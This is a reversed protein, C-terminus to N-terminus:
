KTVELGTRAIDDAIAAAYADVIDGQRDRLTDRVMRHAEVGRSTGYEIPVSYRLASEISAGGGAGPAVHWSSSLAGTAVPTRARIDPVLMGAVRRDVDGLKASDRAVRDFAAAVEDAGHVVVTPAAM